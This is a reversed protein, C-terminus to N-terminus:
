SEGRSLKIQENIWADVESEIWRSTRGIHIPKPFGQREILNYISTNSQFGAKKKVTAIGLLASQVSNPM